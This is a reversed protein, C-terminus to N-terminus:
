VVTLVEPGNETIAITSEFHASNQGDRTRATWKDKDIKIRWTGKNVMPEIALVMGCKLVPGKHPEGFNPIQPDEHLDQGIGHGVFDRVVSFGAANVKTEVAHSVDSLHNKERACDIGSALSEKTVRILRDDESSIRGVAFTEAVDGFYGDKSVGVDISVIDGEKLSQGNPIGHVVVDNVSVCIHAPFGNYGKFASVCGYSRMLEVALNEIQILKIGPRISRGLEKLVLAAIQCSKRIKEIESRSRIIIM